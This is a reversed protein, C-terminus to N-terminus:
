DKKVYISIEMLSRILVKEGLRTSRATKKVAESNKHYKNMEKAHDWYSSPVGLYDSQQILCSGLFKGVSSTKWFAFTVTQMELICVHGSHLHHCHYSM